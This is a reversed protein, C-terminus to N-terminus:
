TRNLRHWIYSFEGRLVFHSLKRAKCYRKWFGEGMSSKLQPRYRDQIAQHERRGVEAITSSKAQAQIRFAGWFDEVLRCRIGPQLGYRTAIEYDFAFRYQEDFYGFRDLMSRKFFFAQNFIQMGEFLQCEACFPLVRMNETIVDAEDIIYMHGYFVDDDPHKRVAEAVAQFAGPAFTDDSNQFGVLDGTARRFGKNIADVQGKDKESVWGALYREYKRIIEVSGDTSGGDMIFYELNPYNQNLVSLITRELYDAQNYSPTVVSLKPWSSAGKGAGAPRRDIRDTTVFDRLSGLNTPM